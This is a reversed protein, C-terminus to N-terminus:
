GNLKLHVKGNIVIIHSTGTNKFAKKFEASIGSEDGLLIGALMSAEPYFEECFMFFKNILFFIGFL